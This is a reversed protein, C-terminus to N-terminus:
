KDAHTGLYEQVEKIQVEYFGKLGGRIQGKDNIEQKEVKSEKKDKYVYYASVFDPSTKKRVIRNLLSMMFHESHTSILFIKEQDIAIECLAEVLMTVAEPHLHIEPEEICITKQNTRLAKTLLYVLQNTGFGDNVLDCIFATHSDQTQLYFSSVGPSTPRFNFTRNLIKQLYFSVQGELDRDNALMTAVEDEKFANPTITTPTYIPKTFGRKLPIFDVQRIDETCLILSDTLEKIITAKEQEPGEFKEINVTPAVGNWTIKASGFRDEIVTGVPLNLAYPFTAELSLSVIYPSKTSIRFQSKEKSLSIGYECAVNGSSSEIELDINRTDEQKLFVSEKFGGLNLFGFDFFNDLGQNTNSVINKLVMLSYFLTSKGSNNGGTLVTVPALDLEVNNYARLNRLKLKRLM